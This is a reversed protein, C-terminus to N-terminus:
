SQKQILDLYFETFAANMYAALWLLGVGLTFVCAIMWPIFSLELKFKRWKHGKMLQASRGWIQSVTLDPYDLLLYNVLSYRLQIYCVYVFYLVILIFLGAYLPLAQEAMFTAMTIPGSIVSITLVSSAIAFVFTGPLLFLMNLLALLIAKGPHCQFGYFLDSFNATEKQNCCIKLFFSLFGVNLIVSLITCVISILPSTVSYTFVITFLSMLVAIGWKGALAQKAEQKLQRNSKYM